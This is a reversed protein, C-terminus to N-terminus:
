ASLEKQCPPIVDDWGHDELDLNQSYDIGKAHADYTALSQLEKPLISNYTRYKEFIDEKAKFLQSFNLKGAEYINIYSDMIDICFLGLSSFWENIKSKVDLDGSQKARILGCKKVVWEYELLRFVEILPEMDTPFCAKEKEVQGRSDLLPKLYTLDSLDNFEIEEAEGRVIELNFSFNPMGLYKANPHQYLERIHRLNEKLGEITTNRHFTLFTLCCEVEHEILQRISQKMTEVTSDKRLTDLDPQYLSEVGVLVKKFGSKKMLDFENFAMLTDARCLTMYQIPPLEDIIRNLLDRKQDHYSPNAGLFESDLFVFNSIGRSLYDKIDDMIMDVPRTQWRKEYSQGASIFCFKCKYPCGRTTEIAGKLRKKQWSDLNIHDFYSKYRLDKKFHSGQISLGMHEVLEPESQNVIKIRQNEVNMHRLPAVQGYLFILAETDEFLKYAVRIAYRYGEGLDRAVVVFYKYKKNLLDEYCISRDLQFDFISVNREPLSISSFYGLLSTLMPDEKIDTDQYAPLAPPRILCVNLPM